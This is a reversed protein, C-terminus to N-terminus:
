IRRRRRRLGLVVLGFGIIALTSPESITTMVPAQNVAYFPVFGPIFSISAAFSEGSRVVGDFDLWITTADILVTFGRASAAALDLSELVPDTPALPDVFNLISWRYGTWDAGTLNTITESLVHPDTSFPDFGTLVMSHDGLATWSKTLSTAAPTAAVVACDVEPVSTGNCGIVAARPASTAAFVAAIAAVLVPGFLAHRCRM